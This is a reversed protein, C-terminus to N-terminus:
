SLELPNLLEAGLARYTRWQDVTDLMRVRRRIKLGTRALRDMNGGESIHVFDVADALSAVLRDRVKNNIGIFDSEPRFPTIVLDTLPDFEYRWLRAARFAENRLDDGLVRFLGRDLCLIRPAGWRLPVVASRQYEPRDHGTVLVQGDLVAAETLKEICALQAPMANRSSLVAFTRAELLRQNGYLFLVGPPDADFQEIKTPYHADATTVLSVGLGELRRELQRTTEIDETRSKLNEAAKVTLRYEERWAERSLALFQLPTRGLLSNRALVRTVTKGGIGPTLALHLAFTRPSLSM